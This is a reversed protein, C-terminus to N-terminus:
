KNKLGFSASSNGAWWGPAEGHAAPDAHYGVVSAPGAPRFDHKGTAVQRTLYTIGAGPSIRTVTLM